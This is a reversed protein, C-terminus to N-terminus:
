LLLECETGPGPVERHRLHLWFFFLLFFSLFCTLLSEFSIIFAFSLVWFFDTIKEDENKKNPM